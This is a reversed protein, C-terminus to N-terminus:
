RKRRTPVLEVFAESVALPDITLLKWGRALGMPTDKALETLFDGHLKRPVAEIVMRSLAIDSSFHPVNDWAETESDSWGWGFVGGWNPDAWTGDPRILKYIRRNDPLKKNVYQPWKKSSKVTYGLIRAVAMDLERNDSM